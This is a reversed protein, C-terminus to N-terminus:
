SGGAHEIINELKKSIKKGDGEGMVALVAGENLSGILLFSDGSGSIILRPPSIGNEKHLVSSAGYITASLASFMDIKDRNLGYWAIPIGRSSSILCAKVRQKKLSRFLEEYEMNAM